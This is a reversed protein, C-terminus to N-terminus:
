RDKLVRVIRDATEKSTLATPFFAKLSLDFSSSPILTDAFAPASSASVVSSLLAMLPMKIRAERMSLSYPDYDFACSYKRRTDVFQNPLLYDAKQQGKSELDSTSGSAANNVGGQSLGIGVSPLRLADVSFFLIPLLLTIVLPLSFSM